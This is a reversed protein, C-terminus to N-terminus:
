RSFLCKLKNFTLGECKAPNILFKLNANHDCDDRGCVTVNDLYAYAIAYCRLRGSKFKKCSSGGKLVMLVFFM